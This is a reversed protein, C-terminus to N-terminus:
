AKKSARTTRLQDPPGNDEYENLQEQMALITKELALIRQEMKTCTCGDKKGLEALGHAEGIRTNHEALELAIGEILSQHTLHQTMQHEAVKHATATCAQELAQQRGEIYGM